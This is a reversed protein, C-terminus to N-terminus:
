SSVRSSEPEVHTKLLTLLDAVEKPLDGLPIRNAIEQALKEKWHEKSKKNQILINEIIPVRPIIPVDGKTLKLEYLKNLAEILSDLPYSDELDGQLLIYDGRGIVDRKVLEVVEKEASRDLFLLLRIQSGEAVVKWADLNYRSKNKGHVPHLRINDLALKKRKAVGEIFRQDSLGEVLVVLDPV